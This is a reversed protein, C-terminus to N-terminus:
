LTTRNADLMEKLDKIAEESLSSNEDVEFQVTNSGTRQLFDRATQKLTRPIKILV